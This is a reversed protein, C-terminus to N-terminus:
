SSENSFVSNQKLKITFPGDDDEGKLQFYYAINNEDLALWIELPASDQTSLTYRTTSIEVGDLMEVDIGKHEVKMPIISITENDLLNIELPLIQQQLSWFTPLNLLTTHYSTELFRMNTPANTNGSLVLESVALVEGVVPIVSSLVGMSFGVLEGEKKQQQNEIESFNIWLEVGSSSIKTWYVKNQSYTKNDGEILKHQHSYEEDSISKLNIEGWVGKAQISTKESIQYGNKPTMRIKLELDGVDDDEVFIDYNFIAEINRSAALPNDSKFALASLSADYNLIKNINSADLLDESEVALANFTIVLILSASFFYSWSVFIKQKINIM